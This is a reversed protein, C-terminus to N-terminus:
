IYDSNSNRTQIFDPSDDDKMKVSSGISVHRDINSPRDLNDMNQTIQNKGNTNNNTNLTNRKQSNSLTNQPTPILTNQPVTTLDNLLGSINQLM